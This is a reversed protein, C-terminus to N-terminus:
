AKGKGKVVPKQFQDATVIDEPADPWSDKQKACHEVLQHVDALRRMCDTRSIRDADVAAKCQATYLSLVSMVVAAPTPFFDRASTVYSPIDLLMEGNFAQKSLDANSLHWCHNSPLLEAGDLFVDSASNGFLKQLIEGLGKADPERRSPQHYSIPIPDGWQWPQLVNEDARDGLQSILDIKALMQEDVPHGKVFSDITYPPPPGDYAAFFQLTPGTLTVGATNFPAADPRDIGIYISHRDSLALLPQDAAAGLRERLSEESILILESTLDWCGHRVDPRPFFGICPKIPYTM